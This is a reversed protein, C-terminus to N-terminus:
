STGGVSSGSKSSSRGHRRLTGTWSGLWGESRWASQPAEAPPLRRHDPSGMQQICRCHWGAAATSCHVSQARQHFPGTSAKARQHFCASQDSIRTCRVLLLWACGLCQAHCRPSLDRGSAARKQWRCAPGPRAWGAPSKRLRPSCTWPWEGGREGGGWRLGSGRCGHLGLESGGQEAQGQGACCAGGPEQQDDVSLALRLGPQPALTPSPPAEQSGQVAKSAWKFGAGEGGDGRCGGGHQHDWGVAHFLIGARTLVAPQPLRPSPAQAGATLARPRACRAAVLAPSPRLLTAQGRGGVWAM